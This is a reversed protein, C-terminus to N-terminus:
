LYKEKITWQPSGSSQLYHKGVYEGILGLFVIQIGSFFLISVMLSTWGFDLEPNYIKQIIFIVSAFFALTTVIVGFVSFIRLPKISFNIFMRLWLSILKKFTYGSKGEKRKNHSVYVSTINDTVRLILGDIYPTPGNYKTIEEVISRSIVKFSSLYLGKPKDLLWNSVKDNFSSGINRFTHHKKSYYKSYVVDAGTKAVEVLRIIEEPPNQFDDDVIVVFDGTSFNLACMVANHEGYNKRLSIYKINESESTLKKCITDSDDKSKDNVLIIETECYRGVSAFVAHVLESITGAGNYVPICVSVKM